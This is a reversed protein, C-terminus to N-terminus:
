ESLCDIAEAPVQSAAIAEAAVIIPDDDGLLEGYHFLEKAREDVSAIRLSSEPSEVALVASTGDDLGLAVAWAFPDQPEALPVASADVIELDAQGSRRLTAQFSDQLDDSIDSCGARQDVSPVGPGPTSTETSTEGDSGDPQGTCAALVGLMVLVVVKRM